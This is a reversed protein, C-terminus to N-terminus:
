MLILPCLGLPTNNHVPPAPTASFGAPRQRSCAISLHSKPWESRVPREAHACGFWMSFLQPNAVGLIQHGNSPSHSRFHFGHWDPSHLLTATLVRLGLEQVPLIPLMPCSVQQLPTGACVHNRPTSSPGAGSLDSAHNARNSRTSNSPSGAGAPSSGRQAWLRKNGLSLSLDLPSRFPFQHPGSSRIAARTKSRPLAWASMRSHCRGSGTVPEPVAATWQSM